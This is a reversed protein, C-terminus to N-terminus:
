SSPGTSNGTSPCSSCCYRCEGGTHLYGIIDTAQLKGGGGKRQLAETLNRGVQLRQQTTIRGRHGSLQTWFSPSFIWKCYQSKEILFSLTKNRQIRDWLPVLQMMCLCHIGNYIFHTTTDFTKSKRNRYGRFLKGKGPHNKKKVIYMVEVHKREVNLIPSHCCHSFVLTALQKQRM